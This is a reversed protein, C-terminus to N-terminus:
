LQLIWFKRNNLISLSFQYIKINRRNFLALEHVLISFFVFRYYVQLKVRYEYGRMMNEVRTVSVIRMFDIRYM